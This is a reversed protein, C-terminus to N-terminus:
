GRFVRKRRGFAVAFLAAFIAAIGSGLGCSANGGNDAPLTVGPPKGTSGGVPNIAIVGTTELSGAAGPTPLTLTAPVAVNSITDTADTRLSGTDNYDLLSTADTAAFTYSFLLVNTGSGSQYLATPTTKGNAIDNMVLYPTGVVGVTRNFTVTLKISTVTSAGYSYTGSPTIFATTTVTPVTFDTTNIVIRRNASLSGPAGVAPLTLNAPNGVTDTITGGNLSLANPGVVDLAPTTQGSAVTYTFTLANTGTGSTYSVSVPQPATATGTQLTLTPMGSVEVTTSFHVVIPIAQGTGYVGSTLTSDVGTVTPGTTNITIAGTLAPLTLNISNGAADTIATGNLALMAVTASGTPATALPNAADGAVVTYQFVLLNTGTGNAYTAAASASSNLGFTPRGPGSGTVTVNESVTANIVINAGTGYTNTANTVTLATIQPPTRLSTVSAIETPAQHYTVGYIDSVSQDVVQLSVLGDASPLVNVTFTRHDGSDIVSSVAGNVVNLDAATLAGSTTSIPQSFAVNFGLPDANTPSVQIAGISVTLASNNYVSDISAADTNSIQNFNGAADNVSNAPLYCTVTTNGAPNVSVTYDLSDVQTIATVTGNDVVLDGASLGTIPKSFRLHYLVPSTSTYTSAATIFALPAIPDYIQTAVNSAINANGSADIASTAPVSCAVTVPAIFVATGLAQTGLLPSAISVSGSAATASLTLATTSLYTTGGVEFPTFAPLSAATVGPALSLAISSVGATAQSAVVVAPLPSLTVSYASGSNASFASVTAHAASVDAAVFGTVAASFTVGFQPLANSTLGNPSVIVSPDVTDLAVALANSAANPNGAASVAAFAPITVVVDAGGTPLVTFTWTRNDATTIASDLSGNAIAVGTSTLGSVATSFVASITTTQGVGITAPNASLVVTPTSNDFTIAVVNSALNGNGAADMVVGAPIQVGLIGNGNAAVTFTFASATASPTPGSAVTCNTATIGGATLGGVAEAFVANITAVRNTGIVTTTTSLTCAPPATFVYAVSAVNSAVNGNGAADQIAGAGIQCTVAGSASPIVTILYETSSVMVPTTASGNVVSLAAIPVGTVPKNLNLDFVANTYTVSGVRTLTPIPAIPDYTITATSSAANGNAASDQAANALVACSVAVPGAYVLANAPVQAVLATALSIPAAAAGIPADAATQYTTGNIAISTGAPITTPNATTVFVQTSGAAAVGSTQATAAPAIPINYDMGSGSLTGASGGTISLGATTLGHVNEGFVLSFTPTTAADVTIGTPSIAASPPTGNFPVSLTAVQNANGAIDHAAGAPITITLAGPGTAQENFTWTKNDSTLLNTPAAGSGVVIDALVFDVVPTSFTTTVTIPVNPGCITASPSLGITVPTNDYTYTMTGSATNGNGAADTAANAPVQLTPYNPGTATLVANWTATPAAGSATVTYTANTVTLTTLGSVPKSFTILVPYAKAPSILDSGSAPTIATITPAITDVVIANNIVTSPLTLNANASYTDKITAGGSLALASLALAAGNTTDGSAITYAFALETASNAGTYVASKGDSLSITPTGTVTVPNSFDVVFPIVTGVTYTGTATTTSIATITPAPTTDIIVTQGVNLAGIAGSAPVDQLVPLNQSDRIDSSNPNFDRVNLAPTNDGQTVIYNFVITNGQYFDFNAVGGSNLDLTCNHNTGVQNITRAYNVTIQVSQGAVYAGTPSVPATISIIGTQSGDIILKSNTALTHTGSGAPVTPATTSGDFTAGNLALATTSDVDLYGGGTSDNTHVVYRFTLSSFTGSIGTYLAQTRSPSGVNMTLSPQGGSVDVAVPSAFTVVIDVPASLGLTEGTTATSSIDTVTAAAASAAVLAILVLLSLCRTALSIV